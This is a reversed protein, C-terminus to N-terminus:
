GVDDILVVKKLKEIGMSVINKNGMHVLDDVWSSWISLGNEDWKHYLCPDVEPREYEMHKMMKMM